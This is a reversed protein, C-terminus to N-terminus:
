VAKSFYYKGLPRKSYASVDELVFTWEKDEFEIQRPDRFLTVSIDINEPVAWSVHGNYPNQISPEWTHWQLFPTNKHFYQCHCENIWVLYFLSTVLLQQDSPNEPGVQLRFIQVAHTRDTEESRVTVDEENRQVDTLRYRGTQRGWGWRHAHARARARAHTHTVYPAHFTSLEGGHKTQPQTPDVCRVTQEAAQSWFASFHLFNHQFLQLRRLLVQSVFQTPVSFTEFAMVGSVHSDAPAPTPTSLCM